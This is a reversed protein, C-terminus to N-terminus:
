EHRLPYNCILHRSKFSFLSRGLKCKNWNSIYDAGDFSDLHMALLITAISETCSSQSYYFKFLIYVYFLHGNITRFICFQQILPLRCKIQNEQVNKKPYTKGDQGEILNLMFARKLLSPRNFTHTPEVM